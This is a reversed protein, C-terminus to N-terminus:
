MPEDKARDRQEYCGLRRPLLWDWGPVVFVGPL